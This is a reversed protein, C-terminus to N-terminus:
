ESTGTNFKSSANISEFFYLINGGNDVISGACTATDKIEEKKGNKCSDTWLPWNEVYNEGLKSGYPIVMGKTDVYLKFIDRGYLNPAKTGNIDLYVVYYFGSTREDAVGDNALNDNKMVIGDKTSYFDGGKIPSSVPNYEVKSLRAYSKLVAGLYNNSDNPAIEELTSAEEMQLAVSNASELTNIAKMLAPGAKQKEINAQLSPLTVAAIVGLIALTILVEALSFGHLKKM